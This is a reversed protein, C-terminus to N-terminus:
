LIFLESVSFQDLNHTLIISTEYTVKMYLYLFSAKRNELKPSLYVSKVM